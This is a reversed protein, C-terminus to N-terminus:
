PLTTTVSASFYELVMINAWMGYKSDHINNGQASLQEVCLQDGQKGRENDDGGRAAKISLETKWNKV